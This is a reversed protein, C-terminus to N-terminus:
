TSATQLRYITHHLSRLTPYIQQYVQRFYVDYLAVQDAVPEIPTQTYRLQQLAAPVDAYVGAALGGLVAAGLATAEEVGVVIITHNLVTAKIRMLLRNRIGGGIAYIDRLGTVGSHALLPELSNRCDFALGELVSRFLCGRQIDTSLGVFAGRAHPDDYPPSALRLHPLFFAGL